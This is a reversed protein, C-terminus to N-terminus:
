KISFNSENTFVQNYDYSNMNEINWLLWAKCTKKTLIIMQKYDTIHNWTNKDLVLLKHPM